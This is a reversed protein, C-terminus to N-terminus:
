VAVVFRERAVVGRPAASDPSRCWRRAVDAGRRRSVTSRRRSARESRLAAMPSATTDTSARDAHGLSTNATWDSFQTGLKASYGRSLNDKKKRSSDGRWENQTM